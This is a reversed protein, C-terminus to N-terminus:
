EAGGERPYVKWVGNEKRIDITDTMAAAKIRARQRVKEDASLLDRQIGRNFENLAALREYIEGNRGGVTIAAEVKDNGYLEQVSVSDGKEGSYQIHDLESRYGREDPCYNIEGYKDSNLKKM